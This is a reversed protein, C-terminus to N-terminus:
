ESEGVFLVESYQGRWQRQSQRVVSKRCLGDRGPIVEAIRGWDWQGCPLREEVVLMLDGVRANRCLKCRTQREQLVSAYRKILRRWFENGNTEVKETFM